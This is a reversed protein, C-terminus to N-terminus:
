EDMECSARLVLSYDCPKQEFPLEQPLSLSYVASASKQNEQVIRIGFKRDRHWTM